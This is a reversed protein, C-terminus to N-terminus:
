ELNSRVHRMIADLSTRQKVSHTDVIETVHKFSGHRVANISLGFARDHTPVFFHSLDDSDECVSKFATRSLDLEHIVRDAVSIYGGERTRYVTTHNQESRHDVPMLRDLCESTQHALSDDPSPPAIFTLSAIGANPERLLNTAVLAGASHAIVHVRSGEDACIATKALNQRIISTKKELGIEVLNGDEDRQSLTPFLIDVSSDLENEISSLVCHAPKHETDYLMGHILLITDRM